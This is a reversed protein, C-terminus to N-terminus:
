KKSPADVDEKEFNPNNSNEGPINNKNYDEKGM